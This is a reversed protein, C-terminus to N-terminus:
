TYLDEHKLFNIKVEGNVQDIIIEPAGYILNHKMALTDQYAGTDLFVLYYSEGRVPLHLPVGRLRLKIGPVAILK